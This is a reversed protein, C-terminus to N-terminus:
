LWLHQSQTPSQRYERLAINSNDLEMSLHTTRNTPILKYLGERISNQAAPPRFRNLYKNLEIKNKM